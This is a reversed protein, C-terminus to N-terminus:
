RYKGMTAANITLAPKVADPILQISKRNALRTQLELQAAKVIDPDMVIDIASAALIKAALDM